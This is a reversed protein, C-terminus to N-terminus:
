WRPATKKGLFPWWQFPLLHSHDFLSLRLSSHITVRRVLDPTNFKIRSQQEGPNLPWRGPFSSWVPQGLGLHAHMSLSLGGLSKAPAQQLCAPHSPFSRCLRSLPLSLLCQETRLCSIATEGFASLEGNFSILGGQM